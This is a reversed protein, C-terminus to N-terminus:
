IEKRGEEDLRVADFADISTQTEESVEFYAKREEMEAKGERKRKTRAAQIALARSRVM